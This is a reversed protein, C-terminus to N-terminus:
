MLADLAEHTTAADVAAIKANMADKATQVATPDYEEAPNDNMQRRMQEMVVQQFAAKAQGKLSEKREDVSLERKSWVIEAPTVDINISHTTVIERGDVIDPFIEVAERWGAENAIKDASPKYDWM